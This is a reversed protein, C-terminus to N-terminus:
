DGVYRDLFDVIDPYMACLNETSQVYYCENPYVKYEYTKYEQELARAFKESADSRPYRGEGHVLFVPTTAGELHYIPSCRLYVERNEAVDGFEYRLLQRHRLEQEDEFDLWDGYGAHPVAARFIGPAFGVASMSMCGGYSTGHIAMRDGEVYDLSGLYEVGALVDGLDGHGWDRNNADEFARGYGSSGRINPLLVVYGRRIFYHVDALYTDMYQSTPGGHVRILGPFRQGPRREPPAYLYAPIELGDASAYTIKEPLSLLSSTSETQPSRTLQRRRGDHLSVVWLDAPKVPSEFLYAIEGGDPSWAPRSVVGMEPAVLEQASPADNTTPVVQLSTTGNRNSVFAMRSGDAAIAAETQDAEEAYVPTPDGGALPVRWYNIWGSRQSPFVVSRGDPTVLPFGFRRGYHYDFFNTDRAVIEVPEGSRTALVIEHDTWREDLRVYAIHEGDPLAVPYVEYRSDRTLRATEGDPVSVAYIDYRGHRNASFLISGSDPTWSYANINAGVHTLQRKEGSQLSILWIEVRSSRERDDPPHEDGMYAIWRGDPSCTLQPTSLFPLAGMKGAVPTAEGGVPDVLQLPPRDPLGCRVLIRSGDPLWVPQDPGATPAMNLLQRLTVGGLNEDCARDAM